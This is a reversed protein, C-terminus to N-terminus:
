LTGTDHDTVGEDPFEGPRKRYKASSARHASPVAEGIVLGEVVRDAGDLAGGASESRGELIDTRMHHTLADARL